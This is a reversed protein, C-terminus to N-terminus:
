KKGKRAQKQQYMLGDAQAILESVKCPAEPDFRAIGLSIALHYTEGGQQNFADLAAQIRNTIIEVSEKSADVALVVFEDGGIRSLIDSERFNEKLITSIVKLALDGKAHGWTDNIAKLNDVDGFFLLMARKMRHALKVEQEALLIFGRRNNLGTLEDTLSLSRIEEELRKREIAQAVQTSVFELLAMDEQKFHIGQTYSQVAIVGIMRGEVKLPVGLWDVSVTGVAEVEGQQVLQDFIERTALLPRGTRIVYGTLGQIHIPELPPADYQDIYYPFSILENASDYLAIFFNEVPILEGLISHISYYLADIGVSSIATQTIRYIANQILENKKRETIDLLSGELIGKARYLRLSMLCRRVEGQKNLMGGEYDIVHDETELRRVMKERERPDAWQIVSASSQMEARTRGFITLLRENVDLIESGDLRTRFMGIGANNFLDRFKEESEHLAEEVRKRETIDIKSVFVKSWTEEYGPPVSLQVAVNMRNGKLTQEIFEGEFRMKGESLAIIEEIFIPLAEDLFITNLGSMLEEKSGANHLDLAAQNVDVVKVLAIWHAVSELHQNFYNRLNKVGRKQLHNIKQKVESYDELWLATPSDKFLSQYRDESDYLVQEARKRETIDRDIGLVREQGSLTILCSSSQIYFTSGDKRRHTEEIKIPGKKLKQYYERRHAKGNGPGGNIKELYKNPLEVVDATENSVERIDKGIIESRNFGNMECFSRNCNEILWPGEANETPNIIVMGDPSNDFIIQFRDETELVKTQLEELQTTTHASPKKNRAGRDPQTKDDSKM